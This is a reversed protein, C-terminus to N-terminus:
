KEDAFAKLKSWDLIKDSPLSHFLMGVPNKMQPYMHVKPTCTYKLPVHTDWFLFGTLM